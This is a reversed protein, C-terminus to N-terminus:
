PQGTDSDVPWWGRCDYAIVRYGHNLFFLMPM